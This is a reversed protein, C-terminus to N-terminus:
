KGSYVNDTKNNIKSFKPPKIATVMNIPTNLKICSYDVNVM